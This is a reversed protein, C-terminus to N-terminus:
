IWVISEMSHPKPKSSQSPKKDQKFRLEEYPVIDPKGLYNPKGSSNGFLSDPEKLKEQNRQIDQSSQSFAMVSFFLFTLALSLFKLKACM